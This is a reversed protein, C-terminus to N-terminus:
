GGFLQLPDARQQIREGRAQRLRGRPHQSPADPRRSRRSRRVAGHGGVAVAVVHRDPVHRPGGPRHEAVPPPSEEGSPGIGHLLLNMACLRSVGDVLEVGHLAKLKLHKKQSKDLTNQHAIYDHASRQFGGTCAPDCITEGPAPRVVDVIADILPRPTFYQGAGGKVDQANKELLGEYADGKM